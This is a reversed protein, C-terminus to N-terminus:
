TCSTICFEYDNKCSNGKQPEEEVGVRAQEGSMNWITETYPLLFTDMWGNTGQAEGAKGM